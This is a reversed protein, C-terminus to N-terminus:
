KNTKNSFWKLLHPNYPKACRKALLNLKDHTSFPLKSYFLQCLFCAGKVFISWDIETSKFTKVTNHIGQVFDPKRVLHLGPRTPRCNLSSSLWKNKNANKMLFYNTYVLKYNTIFSLKIFFLLIDLNLFYLMGIHSVIELLSDESWLLWWDCENM